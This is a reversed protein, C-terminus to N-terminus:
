SNVYQSVDHKGNGDPMSVEQRNQSREAEKNTFVAPKNMEATMYAVAMDQSNYRWGVRGQRDLLICGAEGEVKSKLINIGM